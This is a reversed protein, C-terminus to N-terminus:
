RGIVYAADLARAIRARVDDLHAKTYPEPNAKLTKEAAADIRRLESAALASITRLSPSPADLLALTTLRAAHERQLNRRFSSVEKQGKLCERWVRDTVTTVLENLTLVDKQGATRFENDYVRRLRAPNMLFTLGTGQVGGVLDHVTMSPDAMLESMGQRDWWYEKGMHRVLEPTLGFAADEFAADMILNMAARQEAAPVDAVPAGAGEDGKFANSTFSGGVWPAAISMCQLQTGMTAMYRRRAKAWPEGESVLDTLLRGRLAQVLALRKRAFELNDKGMDWTMNRPDSGVSMAAQSVFVLDPEAARKLVEKVKDEPGYGYAIAWMDYPGVEPTAYPGQAEGLEYNINAAVYDMVSGVTAGAYGPKNVEANTRISSAAMNHQLGLCHGVEHASIYRIMPGIFQEPLGDLRDGEPQDILGLAMVADALSIDLSLMNGIRCANNAHSASWATWPHRQAGLPTEAAQEAARHANMARERLIQGRRAPEALLVRPDWDPHEEFFALTEPSFSQATLDETFSEYMSRIARTLGQHWVVDADLIEGTTPNSRSPGIAYGQESANWRFFNYRADEPDKDMHAGTASDQQYVEVAGAIGVAEFAKNWMLIGERVYRRFQVPTTHEIYWVIPKKPPSLRLNPDAKELHWRNIYRDTVERDAPKAYDEHSNYFYGVRSDAARPKFGPTGTLDGVDYTMRVIRGDQRPAQYEILVNRPFAKAKTLKALRADVAHLSPGYSEYVASGFLKGAQQLAIAGFDIVPRNGPAMGVIPTSLVVRGTYLRNISERAQEDGSTRVEFNPEVLALQNGIREWRAHLTPGMVGAQSDGGSITCAIMMLRGEYNAPLVALVRGKERDEYLDWYGSSGDSTSVVKTLGEVAKELPPFEPKSDAAAGPVQALAAAPAGALGALLALCVAGAAPAVSFGTPFHIRRM